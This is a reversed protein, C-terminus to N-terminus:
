EAINRQRNFGKKLWKALSDDREEEWLKVLDVAAGQQEGDGQSAIDTMFSFAFTSAQSSGEEKQSDYAMIETTSVKLV